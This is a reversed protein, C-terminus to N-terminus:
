DSYNADFNVEVKYGPYLSNVTDSLDKALKKKDKVTFDIVADFSCYKKEDDIYFGHSNVVGELEKVAVRINDRMEKKATDKIDVAYLGVTLFIHFKEVITEQIKVTLKHFEKADIEAPVEVHVSGMAYSPGYDHLVLDYAGIVGDISAIESKIEKTIESDFRNGVVNSIAEFLMELGAKIIFCSIIAGIIGDISIKAFYTVAAGVLTSASIIADFSADAGSAVLADSNYKQGRSKVFQGLILKTIVSAIIIILVVLSYDSIEPEIIKKFSETISTVGAALVILSILITSFYEVRGYGFPHEDNPAKKALKIGAITIVSSLADTLNNVADLVIAISGSILGAVAKFAVLFLNAIIGVISTRTIAKERLDKEM